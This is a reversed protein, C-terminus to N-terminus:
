KDNIIVNALNIKLKEQIDSGIYKGSDSFAECLAGYVPPVKATVSDIEYSCFSFVKNLWIESYVTNISGSFVVKCRNGLIKGAANLYEGIHRANRDLISECVKDGQELGKFVAPAFSAIFAKGGDYIESISEWVPKGLKERTIEELVTKEGRGDYARLVAEIADQGIDFGSGASDILYGWGGIRYLQSKSRVFCVSGTGCKVCAGDSNGIEGTMVNTIDSEIRVSINPFRESLMSNMEDMRNLAGSIGGFVYLTDTASIGCEKIAKNILGSIIDVSDITGIDNPNSASANTYFLIKGESSSVAAATKTGGGDIGLYYISM